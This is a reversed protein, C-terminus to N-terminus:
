YLEIIAHVKQEEQDKIIIVHKGEVKSYECNVIDGLKIEKKYVIKVNNFPRKNNYIDEPLAEYALDLYYLNHLHKNVDIDRRKIEYKVVNEFKEPMKIKELNDIKLVSKDEMKYAKIIEETIIAIKRKEIDVLAWKSTAVAVLKDKVYIEFDRYTFFRNANRAWTRIKLENGYEPRDIVKLDWELLIWTIKNKIIDNIGYGVLDSQFAGINELMELIAKNKILNNKGIDKLGIKFNEEYIM